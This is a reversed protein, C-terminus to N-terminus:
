FIIIMKTKVASPMARPAAAEVDLVSTSIITNMAIMSCLTSHNTYDLPSTSPLIELDISIEPSAGM